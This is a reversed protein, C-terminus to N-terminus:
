VQLGPQDMLLSRAWEPAELGYARALLRARELLMPASVSLRPGKFALLVVNGAQARPLRIVRDDFVDRVRAENCGYSAHEGFLNVALIGPEALVRHCDRYFALSDLVPGRAESDYLDCQLVGFRDSESDRLAEQADQHVVHLRADDPPLRFWQRCTRIVGGSSEVVQIRSQSLHRYCFRTLAGAGLGLQLIQSPPHLFLLWGMMQRVYELEPDFPRALRM